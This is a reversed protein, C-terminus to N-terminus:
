STPRRCGTARWPWRTSSSRWSNRASAWWRSRSCAPSAEIRDKLTRSIKNLAREPVQGKLNLVLMPDFRSFKVESVRPEEADVPLEAKALDVKERIDQLAQAISIEPEFELTVSGRGETASGLMEKIGEINRLQQELPRVLLRESDEASVGELRVEIFVYPFDIDPEMEKPLARYTVFGALLIVLLAVVVARSRRVCLDILANVEANGQPEARRGARHGAPWIGARGGPRRVRLGPRRHHHQGHRTLGTVWVGDPESRAIEVPTFVARNDKGVTMLGIQGDAALSLIAPSVKQALMEGAPIQMEATVGSPLKGGTNPM